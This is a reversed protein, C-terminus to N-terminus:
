KRVEQSKMRAVEAELAKVKEQLEAITQESRNVTEFKVALINLASVVSSNVTNQQALVPYFLFRVMKRIMKKIVAAIPNTPQLPLMIDHLHNANLHDLVNKLDEQMREPSSAPTQNMQAAPIPIDNFSLDTEKYGKEQIERRIEQIIEEINVELNGTDLNDSM